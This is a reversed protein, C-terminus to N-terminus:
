YEEESIDMWCVGIKGANSGCEGIRKCAKDIFSSCPICPGYIKAKLYKQWGGVFTIDFRFFPKTNLIRRAKSDFIETVQYNDVWKLKGDCLILFNCENVYETAKNEMKLIIVEKCPYIEALVPRKSVVKTDKLVKCGM